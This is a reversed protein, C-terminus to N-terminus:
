AVEFSVPLLGSQFSRRLSWVYEVLTCVPPTSDTGPLGLYFAYFSCSSTPM